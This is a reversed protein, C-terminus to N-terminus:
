EFLIIELSFLYLNFFIHKLDKKQRLRKKILSKKHRSSYECVSAENHMWVLIEIIINRLLNAGINGRRKNVCIVRSGHAKGHM